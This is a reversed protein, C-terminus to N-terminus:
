LLYFSHSGIPLTCPAHHGAANWHWPSYPLSWCSPQKATHKRPVSSLAHPWAARTHTVSGCLWNQACKRSQTQVFVWFPDWPFSLTLALKVKWFYRLDQGQCWRGAYSSVQFRYKIWNKTQKRHYDRNWATLKQMRRYLEKLEERPIVFDALSELDTLLMFSNWVHKAFCSGPKEKM